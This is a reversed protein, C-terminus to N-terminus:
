ADKPLPPEGSKHDKLVFLGLPSKRKVDEGRESNKQHELSLWAPVVNKPFQYNRTRPFLERPLVVLTEFFPSEKERQPSPPNFRTIM